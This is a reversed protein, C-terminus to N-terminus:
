PLHASTSRAVADPQYRPARSLLIVYLVDLILIEVYIVLWLVNGPDYLYQAISATLTGLLKGWAIWMSQGRRDGRRVLLSLFLASMVLNDIFATYVSGDDRGFVSVTAVMMPTVMAFTLVFMPWFYSEPLHKPYDSRWYKLFIAVIAIDAAFWILNIVEQMVGGVSPYVFTFLFEWTINMALALFPMAYTRDLLGQRIVCGYTVIWFIGSALGFADILSM